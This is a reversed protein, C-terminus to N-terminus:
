NLTTHDCGCPGDNLDAGCRPCLGACEPRCLFRFPWALWFFEALLGSLDVRGDAVALSGDAEEDGEAAPEGPFALNVVEDVEGDLLSEKEALCRDCILVVGVQFSGRLSLRRGLRKIKLRGNLASVVEPAAQGEATALAATEAPPIDLTLELGDPPLDELAVLLAPITLDARM